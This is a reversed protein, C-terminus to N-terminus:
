FPIEEDIPDPAQAPSASPAAGSGSGGVRNLLQFESVNILIRKVESGTKRDTWSEQELRGTIGLMSGKKAYDIFAQVQKGWVVIDIWFDKERKYGGVCISAKAVATGNEFYRAEPDRGLRGVVAVSNLSAM